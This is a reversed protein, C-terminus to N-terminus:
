QHYATIEVTGTTTNATIDLKRHAPSGYDPTQAHYTPTTSFITFGVVNGAEVRGTTTSARIDAEINTINLNLEVRGTTTTLQVTADRSQFSSKIHAEVEGVSTTAVLRELSATTTMNVWIEGTATTLTLKRVNSATAPVEVRISGVATTLTFSSKINQNLTIDVSATSSSANIRLEENRVTDNFDIKPQFLFGFNKTFVVQYILSANSTFSVKISGTSVTCSIEAEEVTAQATTLEFTETATYLM